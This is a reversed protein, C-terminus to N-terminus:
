RVLVIWRRDHANRWMTGQRKAKVVVESEHKLNQKEESVLMRIESMCCAFLGGGLHLCVVVIM